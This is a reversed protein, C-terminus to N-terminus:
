SNSSQHHSLCNYITDGQFELWFLQHFLKLRLHLADSNKNHTKPIVDEEDNM